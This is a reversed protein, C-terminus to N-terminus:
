SPEGDKGARLSFSLPIQPQDPPMTFWRHSVGPDQVLYPLAQSGCGPREHLFEIRLGEAVLSSIIDGMRYNWGFTRPHELRAEREAYSGQEEDMIAEPSFYDYGFAPEQKREDLLWVLPHYEEIYFVGGPRLFRSVVRAWGGIDPMWGLVGRSTYVIDFRGDLKEPLEYVNAHVLRAEVGCDSALERAVELASEAFDVGTVQAGQRAWSVTDTGIHCQLHLLTRGAVDGVEDIEWDRLTSLGDRIAQLNYFESRANVAALEDWHARNAEM